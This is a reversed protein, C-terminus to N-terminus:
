GWGPAGRLSNSSWGADPQSAHTTPLGSATCPSQTADYRGFQITSQSSAGDSFSGLGRILFCVGDRSRVSVVFHDPAGAPGTTTWSIENPATSPRDRSGAPFYEPDIATLDADTVGALEGSDALAVQFVTFGVRAAAQAARDRVSASGVTPAASPVTDPAPVIPDAIGVTPDATGVTPDATRVTPDATGVTPDATSSDPNVPDVEGFGYQDFMAVLAVIGPVALSGTTRIPSVFWKGDQQVTVIGADDFAPVLLKTLRAFMASRKTGDLADGLGLWGTKFLDAVCNRTATTEGGSVTRSKLCGSGDRAIDFTTGDSASLAVHDLVEVTSGHVTKTHSEFADIKLPQRMPPVAAILMPGYDHLVDGEGDPTLEIARNWNASVLADAMARAAAPSSAAGVAAIRSSPEPAPRGADRRAYEALTYWYSVHWGEGDRVTAIQIPKDMSALDGEASPVLADEPLADAVDQLNAQRYITRLDASATYHGSALSVVAIRDTVTETSTQLDTVALTYGPVDHLDVNRATAAAADDLSRMQAISSAILQRDYAPFTEVAGLLDHQELAHIMQEVAATPTPSGTPSSRMLRVTALGGALVAATAGIAVLRRRLGARNAGSPAADPVLGHLTVETWGDNARPVSSPSPESLSPATGSAWHQWGDGGGMTMPAAALMPRPMPLAMGAPPPSILVNAPADVSAPPPPPLEPSSLAPVVSPRPPPTRRVSPNGGLTTDDPGAPNGSTGPASPEM